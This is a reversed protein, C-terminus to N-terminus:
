LPNVFRTRFSERAKRMYLKIVDDPLHSASVFRRTADPYKALATALLWAVAMRVYYPSKGQVMGLQARQPKQKVSIYDSNVSEFDLSDIRNFVKNLWEGDLMYCMSAVVAFRVEFERSSSFWPLLFEWLRMKDAKAMWKAHACYSDCVAWNDMVPIYNSLMAFREDLTCGCMNILYGWIVTEEYCLSWSPEQEFRKVTIIAGQQALEKAVKKIEPSHLGMVLRAPLANIVRLHGDRYREDDIFRRCVYPQLLTKIM